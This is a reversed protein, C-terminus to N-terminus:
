ATDLAGAGADCDDLAGGGGGGTANGDAAGGSTDVAGGSTYVGGGAVAAGDGGAASGAVTARASGFDSGLTSGLVSARGGSAFDDDDGSPSSSLTSQSHGVVPLITVPKESVPLRLPMSM